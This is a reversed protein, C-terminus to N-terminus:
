WLRLPPQSLREAQNWGRSGSARPPGLRSLAPIWRRHCRAPARGVRGGSGPQSSREGKAVRSPAAGHQDGREGSDNHFGARRGRSHGITLRLQYDPLNESSAAVAKDGTGLRGALPDGASGANRAEETAPKANGAAAADLSSARRQLLSPTAVIALLAAGLILAGKASTASQLLWALLGMGAAAAGGLAAECVTGELGGPAAQVAHEGLLGALGAASLAVGRGGLLGRLKDLARSVRKQAADESVGLRAGVSRLDQQEYFRLLIADRDPAPLDNVAADLEPALDHWGPGDAQHLPNMDVAQVERRRRRQETRVLNAAVLCAHRHLWGGLHAPGSGFAADGDRAKRALDTFVQQVVDRALHADAGVRRYAVSFVLDLYRRVLERFASESGDRAYSQLLERADTM